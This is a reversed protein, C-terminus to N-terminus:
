DKRASLEFNTQFGNPEAGTTKLAVDKFYISKGLRSMFDSVNGIDLTAGKIVYNKEQQGLETLWVDKPLSQALTILSKASFDRGQILSEITQIKTRVVAENKDLESKKGDFGRIKALERNIKDKDQNLSQIEAQMDARQIEVFHDFAFNAGVVLFLPFGLASFLPGISSKLGDGVSEAISSGGSSIADTKGGSTYSPRKKRNLNIKIM